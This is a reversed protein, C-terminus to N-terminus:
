FALSFTRAVGDYVFLCRSLIDRGILAEIGQASLHAEVVPLNEITSGAQIPSHAFRLDIDYQNLLQPIAGTSPTLVAITGTPQLNLRAFIAADLCTFSAGTDILARVRTAAPSKLGSKEALERYARSASIEVEIIPGESSCSRTLYPM